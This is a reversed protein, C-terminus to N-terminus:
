GKIIKGEKFIPVTNSSDLSFTYELLNKDIVHALRHRHSAKEIYDFLSEKALDWMDMSIKASDCDTTFGLEETLIKSLAGAFLSDEINVKNKWGACFIVVSKKDKALWNAVASINTFAGMLINEADSALRIAKVGNTTSYAITKNKLEPRFFETASNGIDAFPPKIGEREAAVINDLRKFEKAKELTEVPIIDKIGYDLAAVVSTTARFIDTIVTNFKGKTLKEPYLLPSLCVEVTM